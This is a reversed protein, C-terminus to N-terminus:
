SLPPFFPSKMWWVSCCCRNCLFCNAHQNERHFAQLRKLWEVNVFRKIVIQWCSHESYHRSSLASPKLIRFSVTIEILARTEKSSNSLCGDRRIIGVSLPFFSPKRSFPCLFLPSTLAPFYWCKTFLWEFPLSGHGGRCCSLLSTCYVASVFLSGARRSEHNLFCALHMAPSADCSSLLM